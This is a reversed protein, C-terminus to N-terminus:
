LTPRLRGTSTPRTVPIDPLSLQKEFHVLTGARPRSDMQVCDTLADILALGRGQESEPGPLSGPRNPDFGRGYDIVDIELCGDARIRSSVRYVGGDGAHRIVNACAETLALGVDQWEEAPVPLSKLIAVLLRRTWPVSTSDRPLVLSLEVQV